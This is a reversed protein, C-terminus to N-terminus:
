IINAETATEAPVGRWEIIYKPTSDLPSTLDTTRDFVNGGPGSRHEVVYVVHGGPTDTDPECKQALTAGYVVAAVLLCALGAQWLPLPRVYWPDRHASRAAFAAAMRHDLRDSPAKPLAERLVKEVDKM